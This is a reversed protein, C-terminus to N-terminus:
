GHNCASHRIERPTSDSQRHCKEACARIKAAAQDLVGARRAGISLQVMGFVGIAALTGYLEALLSPLGDLM